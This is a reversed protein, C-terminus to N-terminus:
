RGFFANIFSIILRFFLVVVLVAVVACVVYEVILGFNADTGLDPLSGFFGRWLDLITTM